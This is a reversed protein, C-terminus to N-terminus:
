YNNGWVAENSGIPMMRHPGGIIVDPRPKKCEEVWVEASLLQLKDAKTLLLELGKPKHLIYHDEELGKRKLKALRDNALTLTKFFEARIKRRASNEEKQNSSIGIHSPFYALRWEGHHIESYKLSKQNFHGVLYQNFYAVLIEEPNKPYYHQEIPIVM